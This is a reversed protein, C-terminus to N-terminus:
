SGPPFYSLLFHLCLKSLTAEQLASKNCHEKISQWRPGILVWKIVILNDQLETKCLSWSWPLTARLFQQWPVLALVWNLLLLNVPLSDLFLLQSLQSLVAVFCCNHPVNQTGWLGEIVRFINGKSKQYCASCAFISSCGTSNILIRM